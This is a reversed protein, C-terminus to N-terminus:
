RLSIQWNASSTSSSSSSSLAQYRPCFKTATPLTLGAIAVNSRCTIETGFAFFFGFFFDFYGFFWPNRKRRRSPHLLHTLAEAFSKWQFVAAGLYQKEGYGHKQAILVANAPAAGELLLM